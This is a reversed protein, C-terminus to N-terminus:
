GPDCEPKLYLRRGLDDEDAVEYGAAALRDPLDDFSGWRAASRVVVACVDDQAAVAALSASTLDGTQIRLISADVLDPTTLRGARWM